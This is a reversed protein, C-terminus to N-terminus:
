YAKTIQWHAVHGVLIILAKATGHSDYAVCSKDYTGARIPTLGFSSGDREDEDVDM